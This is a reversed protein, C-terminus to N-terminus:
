LQNELAKIRAELADIQEQITDAQQWHEANWAEPTDIATICEYIYYSYRVKDGVAYTKSASYYPAISYNGFYYLSRPTLAYAQSDSAASTYLKTVGYYSTTALGGNITAWQTGNYIFDVSEGAVWMYRANTTSGNYYINKAGTGNINLTAQGNYTNANTFLVTIRTGAVLDSETFDECVVVKAATSAGTACTGYYILSKTAGTQIGDLKTKDTSSMLGATSQTADNYTTDIASITVGDSAININTGAILTNQKGAIDSPVLYGRGSLLNELTGKCIFYANSLDQYDAFTRVYCSIYGTSNLYVGNSVKIVGAVNSGAYDTKTVYNTLDVKQTELMSIKYYGVQVYGDTNLSNIFADDTTYTYPVSTSEVGSIWLDPVDVTVVYINQGMEFVDDDMANIATIMSLYDTYGIAQNAGKAISDVENIAGVITKNTTQLNNDEINQKGTIDQPTLYQRESLLNELTGKSIFYTNVLSSYDAYNRAYCNVYGDSTLYIGSSIKIVGANSGSAYDTKTVFDSDNTLDSTKTPIDSTYALMYSSGNYFTPKKDSTVGISGIWAGNNSFSIYSSTARSKVAFATTGTGSTLSVTQSTSGGDKLVCTSLNQIATDAKDLSTQVDDALDTKPIGSNPKDYKANWSTIQSSTVFKNTSNSDDVLGSDLKNLSTIEDQKTNLLTETESKTYYPGEQGIYQWSGSSGSIVWRYYTMANNHTSDQLVKIIDDNGLTSTDYNQLETYTGVIDKVDSSSTIADIQEQLGLDANERNIAESSIETKTAFNSVDPIESKDAKNNWNSIDNQTISKVYSPVTPDTEETLYNGRPQKTDILERVETDDYNELSALKEKEPTTYDNTSLEKGTVKDVKTSLGQQLSTNTAYNGEQQIGLEHLTKNGILTVDNISPLEKLDPYKDIEKILGVDINETDDVLEVDITQTDDILEFEIM